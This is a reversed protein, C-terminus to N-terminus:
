EGDNLYFWDSWRQSKNGVRYTVTSACVNHHQAAEGMSDFVGSPTHIRRKLQERHKHRFEDSFMGLKRAVTTCRGRDRAAKRDEATLAHFGLQNDRSNAGAKAGAQRQRQIYGVPDRQKFATHRAKGGLSSIETHISSLKDRGYKMLTYAIKNGVVGSIRYRLAHIVRHEKVTLPVCQGSDLGGECRPLIHHIEYKVNPNRVRRQAREIIRDHILIYNM